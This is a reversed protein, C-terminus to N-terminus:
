ICEGTGWKKKDTTQIVHGMVFVVINEQAKNKHDRHQPVDKTMNLIYMSRLKWVGFYIAM